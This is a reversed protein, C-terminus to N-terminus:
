LRVDYHNMQLIEQVVKLLEYADLAFEPYSTIYIIPIDYYKKRIIRGLEIGNTEPMMSSLLFIGILLFCREVTLALYKFKIVLLPCNTYILLLINITSQILLTYFYNPNYMWIILSVINGVLHIKLFM